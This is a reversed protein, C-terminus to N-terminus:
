PLRSMSSFTRAIPCLHQIYYPYQPMSAGPMTRPVMAADPNNPACVVEVVADTSGAPPAETTWNLGNGLLAVAYPYGSYYPVGAYM